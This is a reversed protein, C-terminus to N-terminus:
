FPFLSKGVIGLIDSDYIRNFDEFDYRLLRRYYLHDSKRKEIAYVNVAKQVTAFICNIDKTLRIIDGATLTIEKEEVMYTMDFDVTNSISGGAVLKVGHMKHELKNRIIKIDSLVSIHHRLIEEYEEKLFPLNDSYELLGDHLDISYKQETKSFVYPVLRPVAQIVNKIISEYQGSNDMVDLGCLTILDRNMYYLTEFYGILANAIEQTM